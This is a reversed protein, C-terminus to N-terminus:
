GFSGALDSTSLFFGVSTIAGLILGPVTGSTLLTTILYLQNAVAIARQMTSVFNDINEDGSLQKIASLTESLGREVLDIQALVRQMDKMTGKTNIKLNFVVEGTDSFSGQM